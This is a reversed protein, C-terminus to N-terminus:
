QRRQCDYLKVKLVQDEIAVFDSSSVTGKLSSNIRLITKNGDCSSLPTNNRKNLVIRGARGRLQTKIRDGGSGPSFVEYVFNIANANVTAATQVGELVLRKGKPVILPIALSCSNRLFNRGSSGYLNLGTKVHINGASDFQLSTERNNCGNGGIAPTGFRLGDSSANAFPSLGLCVLSLVFSIKRYNMDTEM